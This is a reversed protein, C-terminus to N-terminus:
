AVGGKPRFDGIILPGVATTDQVNKEVSPPAYDLPEGLDFVHHGTEVMLTDNTKGAAQGDIRVDRVQRYRVVVYEM